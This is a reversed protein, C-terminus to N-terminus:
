LGENEQIASKRDVNGFHSGQLIFRLGFRGEGVFALAGQNILYWVGEEATTEEEEGGGEEM